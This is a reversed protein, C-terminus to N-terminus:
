RNAIYTVLQVNRVAGHWNWTVTVTVTKMNADPPSNDVVMWTRTYLSAIPNSTDNHSGATLDAHDYGQRKLVEMKEQALTTATTMQQSFANGKIVGTTVSILGMLSVLFIMIAVLIELITFGNDRLWGKQRHEEAACDQM